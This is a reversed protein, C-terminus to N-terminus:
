CKHELILSFFAAVRRNRIHTSAEWGRKQTTVNREIQGEGEMKQVEEAERKREEGPERRRLM